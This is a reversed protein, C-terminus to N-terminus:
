ARGWIFRPGQGGRQQAPREAQAPSCRGTAYDRLPHGASASGGEKPAAQIFHYDEIQCALGFAGDAGQPDVRRVRAKCELRLDLQKGNPDHTPISLACILREGPTFAVGTVCYFGSSSLDRTLSEVADAGDNRFLLGSWHLNNRTRKRREPPLPHELEAPKSTGGNVAPRELPKAPMPKPVMRRNCKPQWRERPRIRWSLGLSACCNAVFTFNKRGHMNGQYCYEFSTSHEASQGKVPGEM